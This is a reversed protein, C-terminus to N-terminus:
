KKYYIDYNEVKDKKHSNNIAYKIIETDLQNAQPYTKYKYRDIFFYVDHMNEIKKKMDDTGKYGYNGKLLVDFYTIKKDTVLDYFMSSEDLMYVNKYKKYKKLVSIISKKNEDKIGYLTFHKQNLFTFNEFKHPILILNFFCIISFLLLSINRLYKEKLPVKDLFLLTFVGIFLGVHYFDFLPLVFSFSGLAYYNLINKNDKITIYLLFILLILPLIFLFSFSTAHNKTGFDIMGLFCLNIFSSISNTVFLYLIFILVPLFAFISRKFIRQRDRLGILSLLFVPIGITQKSLILLGLVFGILSDKKKEKELLFLLVILFYAFFNYTANYQTFLPFALIPLLLYARNNFMRFFMYFLITVLLSQGIMFMFMDDKIFLFLSMLFSYLPTSITNFDLYPIEGKRIAHAFGYNWIVDFSCNEYFFCVYMILFSIFILLYKYNKKIFSM